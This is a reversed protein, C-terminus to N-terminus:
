VWRQLCKSALGRLHSSRRPRTSLSSAAAARRRRRAAASWVGAFRPPSAWLLWLHAWCACWCWRAQLLPPTTTTRHMLAAGHLRERWGLAPCPLAPEGNAGEDSAPLELTLLHRFCCLQLGSGAAGVREVSSATVTPSGGASGEKSSGSCLLDLVEAAPTQQQGTGAAAGPVPSAASLPECAVGCQQQSDINYDVVLGSPQLKTPLLGRDATDSHLLFAAILSGRPPLSAPLLGMGDLLSSAVTLGPQPELAVSALQAPVAMNSVLTCQVAVAGSALARATTQVSFPQQVAAGLVRTHSRQCGAAYELSAPLDLVAAPQALSDAQGLRRGDLQRMPQRPAAPQIHVQEPPM